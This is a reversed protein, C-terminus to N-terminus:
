MRVTTARWTCGSAVPSRVTPTTTFSQGRCPVAAARETGHVGARVARDSIQRKGAAPWADFPPSTVLRHWTVAFPDAREFRPEVGGAVVISRTVPILVALLIAARAARNWLSPRAGALWRASLWAGLVVPAVSADGIRADLAERVFGVFTVIAVLVVAAIKVRESRDLRGSPGRNRVLAIVAAAPLLLFVFFLLAASAPATDLGQLLRIPGVYWGPVYVDGTVRDIGATDEIAPDKVLASGNATSM